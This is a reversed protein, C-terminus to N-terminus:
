KNLYFIIKEFLENPNFPKSIYDNMGIALCKEKEGQIVAATLAIIPIKQKDNTFNNRIFHTTEYGDMEPMHLDMLILNVNHNQLLEIAEKGNNAILINKFNQKILLTKILFQNLQNDEAVLIIANQFISIDINKILSYEAKAQIETLTPPNTKELPIYFYFCTGQNVESDFWIKGNQLEVLQKAITLGLGTGGFKRTTDNSAQTFSDFISEKRDAPIGIGTDSVKFLLEFINDNVQQKLEVHLEISGQLTFKVANGVLNILIQNLRVQDGLWFVPLQPDKKINFTLGKELIKPEFMKQINDLTDNLNFRHKEFIIKGSEIKSIDLIDNIIVLLNNSSLHIHNLYEKQEDSLKTNQLMNIMGIIANMPTRIEHSMNALFQQKTNALKIAEDKAKILERNQLEITQLLHNFIDILQGVEDNGRKNIRMSFDRSQAIKKVISSLRLIPQSIIKQLQTAIIFAFFLLFVAIILNISIIQKFQNYYDTLERSIYLYGIIKNNESQDVIPKILIFTSDSQLITDKSTKIPNIYHFFKKKEVEAFTKLQSTYIATKTIYPNTNLSQLVKTAELPDNFLLTAVSNNAIIDGTINLERITSLQFDRKDFIIYIITGVFQTLFSVLLIVAIIKYKFSINKFSIKSM